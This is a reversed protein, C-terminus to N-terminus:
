TLVTAIGTLVVLVDVTTRFARQPIRDTLQAGTRNGILAAVLLVPLAPWLLATPIRGHIGLVALSITNTLVFYGAFDAIFSDPSLRARNLVVAVPPGNLSISTSLFGGVVGATTYSATGPTPGDRPRRLLLVVGLVAVVVGAAIKLVHPDLYGVTFAGAVAGPASGALLLGVRRRDIARRRRWLVELRSVLTASLNVVVVSPVDLGVLLLFPTSLLSAAFGTAGGVVSALALASAALLLQISSSV